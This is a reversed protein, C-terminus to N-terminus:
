YKFTYTCQLLSVKFYLTVGSNTHLKQAVGNYEKLIKATVISFMQLNTNMM